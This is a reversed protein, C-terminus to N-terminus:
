AAYHHWAQGGTYPASKGLIVPIVDVMVANENKARDNNDQFADFAGESFQSSSLSPRRQSLVAQIEAWNAPKQSDYTALVDHDNLHQEFDADYPTSKKTQIDTTNCVDMLDPGGHRAFQALDKKNPMTHLFLSTAIHPRHHKPSHRTLRSRRDLEALAGHTLHIKSLRDYFEPPYVWNAWAEHEDVQAAETQMSASQRITKALPRDAGPRPRNSASNDQSDYNDHDNANDDGLSIPRPGAM